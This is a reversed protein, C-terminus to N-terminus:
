IPLNAHTKRVRMDSDTELIGYKHVEEDTCTVYTLMSALTDRLQFKRFRSILDVPDFDDYFLTDRCCLYSVNM